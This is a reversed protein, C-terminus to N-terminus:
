RCGELRTSSLLFGQCDEKVNRPGLYTFPLSGKSCGFTTALIDLKEDPVNIPIMMSKALNVKLGTAMSFSNLLSKLFFIQRTDGEILVLTDDAYQIVPFDPNAISLIPLNLLGMDKAKNIMSQLFDVALVFLLPSLPDGQRVGRRYHITKGQTGNLLISSTSSSFIAEMWQLWRHGFGKVKMITLMAQHEIKDFAKEFDLKLIV